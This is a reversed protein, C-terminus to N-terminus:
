ALRQTSTDHRGKSCSAQCYSRNSASSTSSEGSLTSLRNPMATKSKQVFQPSVHAQAALNEVDLGLMTREQRVVLGLIELTNMYRRVRHDFRPEVTFDLSWDTMDPIPAQMDPGAKQTLDIRGDTNRGNGILRITTQSCEWIESRVKTTDVRPGDM